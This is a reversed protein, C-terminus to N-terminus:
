WNWVRSILSMLGKDTILPVVVIFMSSILLEQGCINQHNGYFGQWPLAKWWWGWREGGRGVRDGWTGGPNQSDGRWKVKKRPAKTNAEEEEQFSIKGKDEKYIGAWRRLPQSVKDYFSCTPVSSPSLTFSYPEEKLDTFHPSVQAFAQCPTHTWHPQHSALPGLSSAAPCSKHLTQRPIIFGLPIHPRLVPMWHATSESSVLPPTGTAAWRYCVRSTEMLYCTGDRAESMPSLIQHQGSSHHLDCVQSPDQM